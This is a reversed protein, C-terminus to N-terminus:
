RSRRGTAQQDAARAESTFLVDSAAGKGQITATKNELDVRVSLNEFERTYVWGDRVAKDLPKGPVLDYEPFDSLMGKTKAYGSNMIFYSDPGYLLLFAAFSFTINSRSDGWGSSCRPVILKGSDVELLADLMTAAAEKTNQPSTLFLEVFVGSAHELVEAGGQLVGESPARYGNYLVIKEDGIKARLEDLAKCLGDMLGSVDAKPVADIFVGDLDGRQICDAISDVWWKRCNPNNLDYIEYKTGSGVTWIRHVWEPHQNFEQNSEYFADYNMVANWYLLVKMDPNIAKLKKATGITAAETNPKPGYEAYAHRKEVTFISYNNAIYEYEEATFDHPESYGHGYRQIRETYGDGGSTSAESDVRGMKSTDLPEIGLKSAPSGPKFRFDGNAPDVFMPDGVLSSKELGAARMKAFHEDMWKPDTPHYYLNSDMDTDVLKPVPKGLNDPIRVRENHAKGGEPHSVIINRHVKSGPVPVWEYSLYGSSPVVAPAVIFNNVIDNVGKSAIGASFGGNNYLVNGYILTEYQDDDCRIAAPLSLARNDHLYNYRLINGTGTGSVYIGNGDSLLEVSHSIENYEFLNHRAHNYKERAKWSEYGDRKVTKDAEAIEHQRVTRGGEGNLSRTPEVRTTILVAAYGSHSLENHVMRNHGSQWAWIGPSHWTIESFHHIYNNVVDNHHNVDKTGPGYGALLIGAEGLHALECNAIRNRQAHLDLRVGSGGSHMFSCDVVQCSEAGRFRLMATPRDFLDWDHQMGWGLRTDDTTWAWRDAHTFTLGEFAIGRVPIDTSGEYDIQGEVRILESVSPALIGRPSGDGAPDSPWLYIKRTQTNVVWEGPEDLAELINEVWVTSGSPNHVWKPLPGMGYTASVGTTAVGSAPDVSALPLMNIVWPRSPRVQVEVDELNEWNKLAGEPFHLTRHDGAKTYDFGSNRARNLRGTGDYLTYFRDLGQPLDAVWVKGAAKAPLGVPASALRTWGTVPVGGSVVPHEGPYAAFTLYPDMIDGAGYQELASSSLSAPAGDELGLVLTQNLQHRGERLVIRVPDAYGSQRLERVAKLADPLSGYPAELSGNAGVNELTSVYLEKAIGQQGGLLLLLVIVVYLVRNRM